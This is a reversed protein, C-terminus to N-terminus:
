HAVAFGVVKKCGSKKLVKIVENITGGTTTIDDVVIITKNKIKHANKIAFCDVINKLRKNRNNIRAQPLTDKTKFIIDKELKFIKENDSEILGLAIIEAQNYGREKYRKNTIPVPILVIESGLSFTHLESIEEILRSYMHQGLIIGISKKKYYKLSHLLKKIIPDHYQFSAFINERDEKEPYPLTNSCEVCLEPGRARCLLCHTPFILDLIFNTLLKM